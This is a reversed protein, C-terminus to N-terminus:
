GLRRACLPCVADGQWTPVAYPPPRDTVCDVCTLDGPSRVRPHFSRPEPRLHDAMERGWKRQYAWALPVLVAWKRDLRSAESALDYALWPIGAEAALVAREACDTADDVPQGVLALLSYSIRIQRANDRPHTEGQARDRSFGRLFDRLSM